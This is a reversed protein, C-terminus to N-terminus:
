TRSARLLLWAVMLAVPPGLPVALMLVNVGFTVAGVGGSGASSATLVGVFQFVLWGTAVLLWCFVWASSALLVRAFPWHRLSKM